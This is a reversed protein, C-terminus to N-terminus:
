KFLVKNVAIGLESIRDNWWSLNKVQIEQLKEVDKLLDKCIKVANEWTDAFVWPPNKEYKFTYDIEYESGVVVPIAGSITAEYLRNSDLTTWGRTAPCFITNNYIDFVDKRSISYDEPGNLTNENQLSVLFNEIDLFNNICERRDSKDCGLFCWNLTRDKIKKINNKNYEFGDIYGLPFHLTNDTYSYEPYNYIRLFLDCYNGLQNHEQLNEFYFEDSTQIIIKPKVKKVCELVEQYSPIKAWPYNSQCRATYIVIDFTDKTKLIDKFTLYHERKNVNSPLLDNFIYQSIGLNNRSDEPPTIEFLLINLTNTNNGSYNKNERVKYIWCNESLILEDKNFCENVAQKVGPYYDYELYYDHGAIIGGNKIKPLWSIIDQKVDEYEHSADIFVFDLSNDEFKESAEVSTMKLPTYYKELPSMNHIFTEYLTDLDYQNKHEVSGEWTDVCYFDITKNSNAIEVAMFSSSKGKWSGVEVFKSNSPFNEVMKKYLNPYSFWNEGFEEQTYIHNMKIIDAINLNYGSIKWWNMVNNYSQHHMPGQGIILESHANEPLLTSQTNYCDEVFLPFCYTGPKNTFLLHEIVPPYNLNEIDLNFFDDFYYLDLLLKVHERKILFAAACWDREGRKEFQYNQCFYERVLVFQVCKWDEPLNDFFEKWTFNWYEVTELSLDDEVILTYPDDTTEYWEKLLTFHSTIPGKSHHALENVYPGVLKHDYEEFRKFLHPVYDIVNYKKFWNELNTRREVSEELSIYHITPLGELKNM